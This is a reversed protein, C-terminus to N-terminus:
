KTHQYTLIHSPEKNYPIYISFLPFWSMNRERNHEQQQQSFVLYVVYYCERWAAAGTMMM